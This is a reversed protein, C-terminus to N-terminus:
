SLNAGPPPRMRKRRLSQGSQKWRLCVRFAEDRAAKDRSPLAQEALRGQDVVDFGIGVNRRDDAVAPIPVRLMPVSFLLPVFTNARAPRTCFVTQDFHRHADGQAFHNEFNAASNRVAPFEFRDLGATWGASAQRGFTEIHRHVVLREGFGARDHARAAHDHHISLEQMTSTALYKMSKQMVSDAAFAYRAADAGVLHMSESVGDGVNVAVASPDRFQQFLQAIQELVGAQTPQTLGRWIRHTLVRLREGSLVLACEPAGIDRRLTRPLRLGPAHTRCRVYLGQLDVAPIEACAPLVFGNEVDGALVFDENRAKRVPLGAVTPAQRRQRTSTLPDFLSCGEQTVLTSSPMSIM